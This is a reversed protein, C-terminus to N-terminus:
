DTLTAEIIVKINRGLGYVRFELGLVRFATQKRSM